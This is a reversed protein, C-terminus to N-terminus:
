LPVDTNNSASVALLLTDYVIMYLSVQWWRGSSQNVITTVFDGTVSRDTFKVATVNAIM